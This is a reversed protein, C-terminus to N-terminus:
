IASLGRAAALVKLCLLQLVVVAEPVHDENSLHSADGELPLRDSINSVSRSIGIRCVGLPLLERATKYM